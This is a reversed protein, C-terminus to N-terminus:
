FQTALQEHPYDHLNEQFDQSMTAAALSGSTEWNAVNTIINSDVGRYLQASIFGSKAKMIAGDKKWVTLFEDMKGAPVVFTNVLTVPGRSQQVQKLFPMDPDLNSFFHSIDAM